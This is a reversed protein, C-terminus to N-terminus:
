LAHPRCFLHMTYVTTVFQVSTITHDQFAFCILHNTNFHCPLSILQFEINMSPTHHIPIPQNPVCFPNTIFTSITHTHTHIYIYIYIYIYAHYIKRSKNFMIPGHNTRLEKLDKKIYEPGHKMPGSTIGHGMNTPTWPLAGDIHDPLYELYPQM